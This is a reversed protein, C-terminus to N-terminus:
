PKPRLPQPDQAVVNSGTGACGTLTLGEIRELADVWPYTPRGDARRAKVLWDGSAIQYPGVEVRVPEWEARTIIPHFALVEGVQPNMAARYPARRKARAM